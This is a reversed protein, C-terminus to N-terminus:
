RITFILASSDNKLSKAAYWKVHGDAFAFNIGGRHRYAPSKEDTLWGAPFGDLTYKGNTVGVGDNGDGFLILLSHTKIKKQEIGSLHGNMWYDTYNLARPDSGTGSNIEPCHFISKTRTYPELAGAWGFNTATTGSKTLPFRQDYDQRYQLLTLSLRQLNSACQSLRAQQQASNGGCSPLMAVLVFFVALVVVLEVRTYGCKM